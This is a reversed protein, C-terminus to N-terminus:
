WLLGADKTETTYQRIYNWALQPASLVFATGATKVKIHFFYAM